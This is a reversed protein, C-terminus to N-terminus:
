LVTCSMEGRLLWDRDTLFAPHFSTVSIFVRVDRGWRAVFGVIVLSHEAGFITKNNAGRGQHPCARELVADKYM